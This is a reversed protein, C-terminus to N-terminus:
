ADEGITVTNRRAHLHRSRPLQQSPTPLLSPVNLGVLDLYNRLAFFPVHAGDILHVSISASPSYANLHTTAPLHALCGNGFHTFMTLGADIAARLQDLSANNHGASVVINSCALVRHRAIRTRNPLWRSLARSAAAADLLRQMASESAQPHRRSIPAAIDM